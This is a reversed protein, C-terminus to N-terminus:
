RAGASDPEFEPRPTVRLGSSRPAKDELKLLAPGTVELQAGIEDALQKISECYDGAGAHSRNEAELSLEYHARRLLAEMAVMHARLEAYDGSPKFHTKVRYMRFEKKRGNAWRRKDEPLANLRDLETCAAELSTHEFYKSATIIWRDGM